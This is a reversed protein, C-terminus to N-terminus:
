NKTKGISKLEMRYIICKCIKCNILLINQSKKRFVDRENRTFIFDFEQKNCSYCVLRQDKLKLNRIKVDPNHHDIMESEGLYVGKKNGSM